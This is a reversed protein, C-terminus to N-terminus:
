TDLVERVREALVKVSFPKQLYHIGEDLVGHYAIVDATYGSMFISKLQPRIAKLKQELDKGNMGPMVVDTVLLDIPGSHSRAIEIADEPRGTSLVTYGKGELIARALGLISEEDEVLLVTETGSLNKQSEITEKNILREEEVRPLYIRFTSGHDPKSVVDIFGNNQKVIGYVTALGLGTGKGLAKTTFFPEFIRSLIEENMGTGTDSVALMVYSGPIFGDHLGCFAEDLIVNATEITVTGVGQIADRANVALNALIQDIQSPDIRVRWVDMGPMWSLNINEGILRRLMKLLSSATENLDMIKPSITQKRAFALLQRTLDASREAASRIERVQNHLRDNAGAEELALDTYGFIISLMNNFDHAVGGALRGVAEMKQSQLLQAQLRDKEMEALKFETINRGVVVLGKRSRDPNFLPIKIMDFLRENGQADPISESSRSLSGKRWAAEDSEACMILSEGFIAETSDALESNTKYRYDVNKLRFVELLSENALLWGGRADKFCIIDPTANILTLLREESERLATEAKKRGTIDAVTILVKRSGNVSLFATSLLIDVTIEAADKRLTLRGEADHVSEETRLTHDISRRILCERCEENRGCGPSRFSNICNLVEGGPLGLLSREHKGSFVLGARNIKEVGGEKNVVAMMFPANEYVRELIDQQIRLEDEATRRAGRDAAEQISREISPILRNLNDKLIFDWIGQKLLEIAREEGVSGSVLILPVEPFRTKCFSLVDEFNITPLNYDSLIVDWKDTEIAASLENSTSVWRCAANMENRKLHREILLYDSRVDEIVLINIAKGMPANDM